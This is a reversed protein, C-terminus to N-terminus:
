HFGWRATLALSGVFLVSGTLTEEDFAILGGSPLDTPQDDLGFSPRSLAALLMPRLALGLEFRDFRHAIGLEPIVFFYHAQVRHSVPGYSGDGSSFAIRASREDDLAGLMAGASLRVMWPWEQGRQLSGSVGAMVGWLDFRDSASAALQDPTPVARAVIDRDELASRLWTVGVDLSVGIGSGFQYGGHLMAHIGAPPAASCGEGCAAAADGFLSPGLAPGVALEVFIRGLPADPPVAPLSAVPTDDAPPPDPLPTLEAEVVRQQRAAVDIQTEYPEAGVKFVRVVHSGAAVTLADLPTVGRPQGDIFVTAGDTSSRVHITGTLDELREIEETVAQGDIGDPFDRRLARWMDLAEGLRGLKGLCLAANQTNGRTAHLQRSALFETLAADWREQAFLVKGRDFHIRAQENDAAPQATALSSLLSLLLVYVLRM